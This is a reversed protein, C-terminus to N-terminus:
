GEDGGWLFSEERIFVVYSCFFGEGCSVEGKWVVGKYGTDAVGGM